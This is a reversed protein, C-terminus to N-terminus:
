FSKQRQQVAAVAAAAAAHCREATGLMSVENVRSLLMLVIVFRKISLCVCQRLRAPENRGAPAKDSITASDNGLVQHLYHCPGQSRTPSPFLIRSAVTAVGSSM